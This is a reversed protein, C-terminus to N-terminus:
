SKQGDDEGKNETAMNKCAGMLAEHWEQWSYSSREEEEEEGCYEKFIRHFRDGYLKKSICLAMGAWKSYTEGPATKVVTKTGDKWIIITAPDNFIVKNISLHQVYPTFHGSAEAFHMDWIVKGIGYNTPRITLQDESVFYKENNAISQVDYHIRHNVLLVKTIVCELALDKYWVRQEVRYKNCRRSINNISLCSIEKSGHAVQFITGDTNFEVVDKILGYEMAGDVNMFEVIDGVKYRKYDVYDM